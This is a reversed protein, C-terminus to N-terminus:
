SDEAYGKYRWNYQLIDKGVLIVLIFCYNQCVHISVHVGFVLFKFDSSIVTSDTEHNDTNRSMHRWM